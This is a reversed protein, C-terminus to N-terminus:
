RPGRTLRLVAALGRVAFHPVPPLLLTTSGVTIAGADRSARDGIMLTDTVKARLAALAAEFLPADPKQYRASLVPHSGTKSKKLSALASRCLRQTLGELDASFVRAHSDAYPTSM